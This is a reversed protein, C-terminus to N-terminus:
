AIMLWVTKLHAPQARSIPFDPAQPVYHRRIIRRGGKRVASEIAALFEEPAWCASNTSAFLVGGPNLLPLAGAILRGYDKEVRFPGHQKSQSFTPPDLIILGYRRSRRGLRRLWDVADGLLFEHGRLDIGNLEFNRKGWELYKRSLDVSTTRVGARAACVSFGCTYAFLNLLEPRRTERHSIAPIRRAVGRWGSEPEATSVRDLSPLEFGASIYGHALRRRNDRQDLFLGVSYGGQFSVEFLFGNERVVFREPATEGMAFQPSADRPETRGAHRSLLKHYCGRADLLRMLRSLEAEQAVTLPLESQSLLFTGLRDVFWGPWRDSAGHIERFSNSEEHDILASRLALRTDQAFDVPARFTIPSGTEPHQLELKAAHLCIRHFPSGGYLTDGLVPCGSEAAHVRIQHTRGTLPEAEISRIPVEPGSSAFEGLPAHGFHTGNEIPRVVFRTEAPEGHMGGAYRDGVRRIRSKAMWKDQVARSATLLVYKKGISRETFQRTLSRNALSTKGFVIVGSTEKDLRHLIALHAWRPERNRLWEYLGEGSYPSAAHTSLGAPKNIVLLHEDEFIVCAIM